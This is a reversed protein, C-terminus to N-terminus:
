QPDRRHWLDGIRLAQLKLETKQRASCNSRRWRTSRRTANAAAQRGLKAAIDRAWALRKEDAVRYSLTIARETMKLPVDTRWKIGRVMEAVREAM